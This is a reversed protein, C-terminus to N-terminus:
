TVGKVERGRDDVQDEIIQFVPRELVSEASSLPVVRDTPVIPDLGQIPEQFDGVKQAAAIQCLFERELHVDRTQRAILHTALDGVVPSRAERDIESLVLVM